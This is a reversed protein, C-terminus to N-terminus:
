KFQERSCDMWCILCHIDKFLYCLLIKSSNLIDNAVSVGEGYKVYFLKNSDEVCM